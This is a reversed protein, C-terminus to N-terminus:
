NAIFSTPLLIYVQQGQLEGTELVKVNINVNDGKKIESFDVKQQSSKGESDVIFSYIVANDKVRVTLADEQYSLAVDRGEIKEVQGYAVISPVAKSSLKDITEVKLSDKQTQYFVGAGSGVVFLALGVIILILINNKKM